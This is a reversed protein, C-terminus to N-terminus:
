ALPLRNAGFAITMTFSRRAALCEEIGRIMSLGLDQLERRAEFALYLVLPAHESRMAERLINGLPNTAEGSTNGTLACAVM